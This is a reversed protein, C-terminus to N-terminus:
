VAIKLEAFRQGRTAPTYGCLEYAQEHLRLQSRRVADIFSQADAASAFGDKTLYKTGSLDKRVVMWLPQADGNCPAQARAELRTASQELGAILGARCADGDEFIRGAKFLDLALYHPVDPAVLVDHQKEAIMRLSIASM